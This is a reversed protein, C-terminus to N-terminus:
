LVLLVGYLLCHERTSVRAFPSLGVAVFVIPNSRSAACRRSSPGRVEGHRINPRTRFNCTVCPYPSLAELRRPSVFPSLSVSFALAPQLTSKQGQFGAWIRGAIGEVSRSGTSSSAAAAEAAAAVAAPIYDVPVRSFALLFVFLFLIVKETRREKKGEEREREREAGRAKARERGGGARFRAPM